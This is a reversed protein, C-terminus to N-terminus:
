TMFRGNLEQGNMLKSHCTKPDYILPNGRNTIEQMRNFFDESPTFRANRYRPYLIIPKPFDFDYHLDEDDDPKIMAVRSRDPKDDQTQGFEFQVQAKSPPWLDWIEDNIINQDQDFLALSMIKETNHEKRTIVRATVKWNESHRNRNEKLWIKRYVISQHQLIGKTKPGMGLELGNRTLTWTSPSKKLINRTKENQNEYPTTRKKVETFETEKNYFSPNEAMKECENRLELDEFEELEEETLNKNPGFTRRANSTSTDKQPPQSIHATSLPSKFSPCLSQLRKVDESLPEPPPEPEETITQDEEQNPRHVHSSTPNQSPRRVSSIPPEFREEDDPVLPSLSEDYEEMNNHQDLPEDLDGDQQPAQNAPPSGAKLIAFLSTVFENSNDSTILSTNVATNLSQLAYLGDNKISTSTQTSTKSYEEEIAEEFVTIFTAKYIPCIRANAPHPGGCLCCKSTEENCEHQRHGPLSCNPCTQPDSRRGCTPKIHDGLEWCHYCQVLKLKHSM